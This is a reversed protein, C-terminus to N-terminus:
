VYIKALPPTKDPYTRYTALDAIVAEAGERSQLNRTFNENFFFWVCDGDDEIDSSHQFAGFNNKMTELIQSSLKSNEEPFLAVYLNTLNYSECCLAVTCATPWNKNTLMLYFNKSLCDTRVSLPIISLVNDKENYEGVRKKLCPMVCDNIFNVCINHYYKYFAFYLDLFLNIDDINDLKSFMEDFIFDAKTM